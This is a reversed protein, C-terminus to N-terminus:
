NIMCLKKSLVNNVLNSLKSFDVPVTKLIDVDIKDVEGKLSALNSKLALKSTDIGTANKLDAKTAFNSLDVKVKIDGRSPEYPQPFGQSM